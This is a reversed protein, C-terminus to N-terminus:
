GRKEMKREREREIEIETEIERATGGKDRMEKEGDINRGRGVFRWEGVETRNM